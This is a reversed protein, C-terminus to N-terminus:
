RQAAGLFGDHLVINCCAAFPYVVGSAITCRRADVISASIPLVHFGHGSKRDSSLAPV